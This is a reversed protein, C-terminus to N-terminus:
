PSRWIVAIRFSMHILAAPLMIVMLWTPPRPPLYWLEFLGGIMYILGSVLIALTVYAINVMVEDRM